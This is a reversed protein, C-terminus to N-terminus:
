SIRYQWLKHPQICSKVFPSPCRQAQLDRPDPLLAAPLVDSSSMSPSKKKHDTMNFIAFNIGSDNLENTEDERKKEEEM